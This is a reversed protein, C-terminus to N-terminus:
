KLWQRFVELTELDSNLLWNPEGKRSDFHNFYIFGSVRSDNQVSNLFDQLWISKRPDDATGIEALYLPQPWQSMKQISSEFVSEYTQWRHWESHSDGFNYGDLGLLQVYRDGPYYLEIQTLPKNVDWEVNPSFMFEVNDAGAEVRVIQHIRRWAAIFAEPQQGWDFWDGNMEFGFRLIVRHGFQKADRAWDRWHEDYDGRNIRLLWSDDESHRHRWEWLEQSIVPTAGLEHSVTVSALPFGRRFSLDQFFLVYQPHPFVGM